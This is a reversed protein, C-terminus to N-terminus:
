EHKTGDPMTAGKLTKATSLQKELIKAHSMNAGTLNADRLDAGTLDAGTLNTDTLNASKLIADTLDAPAERLEQNHPNMIEIHILSAGSLDAETLNAGVFRAGALNAHRLDANHLNAYNLSAGSLNASSLKAKSLDTGQLIAGTLNANTFYVGKLNAEGPYTFSLDADNFRAHPLRVGFLRANKLNVGSLDPNVLFTREFNADSLDVVAKRNILGSEKLFLLVTGKREDDLGQLVTLTRIRAVNRTEKSKTTRLKEKLLLDAMRDLYAQLAAEQQRDMAIERELTAYDEAIKRERVRESRNLYFAGAALVAPIVLLEMWDWLTRTEFGTNKRRITEELIFLLSGGVIIASVYLLYTKWRSEM